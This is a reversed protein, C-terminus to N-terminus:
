ALQPDHLEVPCVLYPSPRCVKRTTENKSLQTDPGRCFTKMEPAHSAKRFPIHPRAIQLIWVTKPCGATVYTREKWDVGQRSTGDREKQGAEGGKVTDAIDDM